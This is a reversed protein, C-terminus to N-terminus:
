AHATTLAQLRGHSGDPLIVDGPKMDKPCDGLRRVDATIRGPGNAAADAAGVTQTEVEVQYHSAFDGHMAGITSVKGWSGMDCATSFHWAGDAARAMDHRACQGNLQRDFAALAGAGSADVCYRTVQVGHHDSVKQTWLGAAIAPGTPAAAIPTNVGQGAHAGTRNCAALAVLAVVAALRTPVRM